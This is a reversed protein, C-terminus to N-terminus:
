EDMFLDMQMKVRALIERQWLQNSMGGNAAFGIADIKKKKAIFLARELHFKQSIIILSSSTNKNINNVSKWTRNGDTDLIFNSKPIGKEILDEKILEVENEGYKNLTDASIIVTTFKGSNFLEITANIRNKYYNNVNGNPLHKPTGLLLAYKTKQILESDVYILENTSSAIFKYNEWTVFVCFLYFVLLQWRYKYIKKM